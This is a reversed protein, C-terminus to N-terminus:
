NMGDVASPLVATRSFGVSDIAAAPSVLQQHCDALTASPSELKGIISMLARLCTVIHECDTWFQRNAYTARIDANLTTEHQQALLCLAEEIQLV